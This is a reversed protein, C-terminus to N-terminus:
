RPKRKFRRALLRETSSEKTTAFQSAAARLYPRFEQKWYELFGTQRMEALAESYHVLLAEGVLGGTRKGAVRAARSLWLLNSPLKSISSIALLSSVTFVSKQQAAASKVLEDWIRQLDAPAPLSRGSIRPLERKLEAWERRLGEMNLPPVNLAEALHSSSKELGDLLQDVTEFRANADLLGERKLAETIELVLSHGAGSADALAALIWIPSVHLTLLGLLEICHSAGRKLLFDDGLREEPPYIGEVQGVQQILFRLTIEVMTRYLATRRIRVPLAVEGIERLLGGSVAGLLRVV